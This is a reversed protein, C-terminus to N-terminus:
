RLTFLEFNRDIDPEQQKVEPGLKWIRLLEDAFAAALWCRDPKSTVMQVPGGSHGGLTGTVQLSTKNWLVITNSDTHGTIFEDEGYGWCLRCIQSNATKAPYQTERVCTGSSVDWLSVQNGSGCVLQWECSPNWSIVNWLQSSLEITVEPANQKQKCLQEYRWIFVKGDSGLSAFKRGSAAWEIQLASVDTESQVQIKFKFQLSEVDIAYLGGDEVGFAVVQNEVNKPHWSIATIQRSSRWKIVCDASLTDLIYWNRNTDTCCIYRGEPDWRLERIYVEFEESCEFVDDFEYIEKTESYWLYLSNALAVALVGTCSWDLVHGVSERDSHLNQVNLVFEPNRQLPYQRLPKPKAIRTQFTKCTTPSELFQRVLPDASQYHKSYLQQERDSKYPHLRNGLFQYKEKQSKNRKFNYPM